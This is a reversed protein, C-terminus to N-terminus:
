LQEDILEKIKNIELPGDSLHSAILADLYWRAKLLEQVPADKQGLRDLYKRMQLELAAQFKEKDRFTPLHQMTEIWQMGLCYAKYHSPNVAKNAGIWQRARRRNEIWIQLDEDNGFIDLLIKDKWVTIPFNLKNSTSLTKLEISTAKKKDNSIYVYVRKDEKELIEEFNNVDDKTLM